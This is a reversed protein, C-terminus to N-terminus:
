VNIPRMESRIVIEEYFYKDLKPFLKKRQKAKM